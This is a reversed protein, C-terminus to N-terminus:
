VGERYITITGAFNAKAPGELVVGRAGSRELIFSVLLEDGGRTLLRAPSSALGLHGFVVATAVSGTGCALTEEEVGREYTRIRISGDPSRSAFNVNCGEPAFRPHHRIMNGYLAIDDNGLRTIDTRLAVVHPVGSNIFHVIEDRNEVQLSINLSLDFADAMELAIREGRVRARMTGANTTFILTRSDGVETGLGRRAAFLALCRAGNGCMEAEGGDRNYYRMRFDHAPDAELLLVGDAGIGRKRDCMSAIQEGDLQIPERMADVVIFDNGAGNMKTFEIIM